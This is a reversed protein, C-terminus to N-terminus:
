VRPWAWWWWSGWCTGATSRPCSNNEKHPHPRAGSQLWRWYLGKQLGLKAKPQTKFWHWHWLFLLGWETMLKYPSIQKPTACVQGHLPKNTSFCFGQPGSEICFWSCFLALTNWWWWWDDKGSSVDGVLSIIQPICSSKLFSKRIQKITQIRGTATWM